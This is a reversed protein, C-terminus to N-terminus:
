TIWYMDCKKVKGESDRVRELSVGGLNRNVWKSSDSLDRWKNELIGREKAFKAEEACRLFNIANLISGAMCAGSGVNHGARYTLLRNAAELLDSGIM